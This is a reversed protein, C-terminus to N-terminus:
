PPPVRIPHHAGKVLIPAARSPADAHALVRRVGNRGSERWAGPAQRDHSPPTVGHHHARRSGAGVPHQRRSNKMSADENRQPDLGSWNLDYGADASPQALFARQVRGNDDPRAEVPRYPNDAWETDAWWVLEDQHESAVMLDPPSASLAEDAGAVLEALRRRGDADGAVCMAIFGSLVDLRRSVEARQWTEYLGAMRREREALRTEADRVRHRAEAPPDLPKGPSLSRVEHRSRATSPRRECSAQGRARDEQDNRSM